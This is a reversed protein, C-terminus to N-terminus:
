KEGDWEQHKGELLVTWSHMPEQVDGWGAAQPATRCCHMSGLAGLTQGTAGHGEQSLATGGHTGPEPSLCLAERMEQSKETCYPRLCYCLERVAECGPVLSAKKCLQQAPVQVRYKTFHHMQHQQKEM